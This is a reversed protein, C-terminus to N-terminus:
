KKMYLPLKVKTNIFSLTANKKQASDNVNKKKKILKKCPFKYNQYIIMEKGSESLVIEM